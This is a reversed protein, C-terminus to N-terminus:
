TRTQPPTNAFKYANKRYENPTLGLISHFAYYLNKETGFGSEEAITVNSKKSYLLLSKAKELRLQTLYQKPTYGLEEQFKRILFPKTVHLEQCLTEVNISEGYNCNLYALARNLISSSLNHKSQRLVDMLVHYIQASIYYPDYEEASHAINLVCEVFAREDVLPMTFGNTQVFTRYIDSIDSGYVHAFYIEWPSDASEILSDNALDIFLVSGATVTFRQGAYEVDARGSKTYALLYTSGSTRKHRYGPGNYEYGVHKVKYLSKPLTADPAIRRVLSTDLSTKNYEFHFFPITNAKM